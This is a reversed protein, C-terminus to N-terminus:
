ADAKEFRPDAPEAVPEVAHVPVEPFLAGVYRHEFLLGALIEQLLAEQRELRVLAGHRRHDIEARLVRDEPSRVIRVEVAREWAEDALDLVGARLERLRRLLADPFFVRRPEVPE